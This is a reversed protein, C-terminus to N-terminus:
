EQIKSNQLWKNSTKLSVDNIYDEDPTINQVSLSFKLFDRGGDIGLKIHVDNNNRHSKIDFILSYIDNCIVAYEPASTKINAKTIIFEFKKAEFYQDVLHNQDLNKILM